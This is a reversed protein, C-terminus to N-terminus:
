VEVSVLHYSFEKIAALQEVLAEKQEELCLEIVEHINKLAEDLTKGQTFCGQLLPCEVVFFGDEDKEVLVPLQVTKPGPMGITM